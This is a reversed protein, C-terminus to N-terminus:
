QPNGPDNGKFQGNPNDPCRFVNEDKVYPMILDRWCIAQNPAGSPEGYNILWPMTEDNDQVYQM